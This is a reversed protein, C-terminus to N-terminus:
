MIGNEEPYMITAQPLFFAAQIHPMAPLAPGAGTLSDSIRRIHLAMAWRPGSSQPVKMSSPSPSPM